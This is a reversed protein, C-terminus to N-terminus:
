QFASHGKFLPDEAAVEVVPAVLLAKAPVTVTREASAVQLM